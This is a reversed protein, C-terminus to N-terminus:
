TSKTGGKALIGLQRAAWSDMEGVYRQVDHLAPVVAIRAEEALVVVQAIPVPETLRQFGRATFQVRIHQHGVMHVQQERWQRRLRHVAEDHRQTAAVHLVDIAAVAAGPRQPVAAVFGRLHPGILIQQGALALDFQVRHTRAHDIPRRVVAPAAVAAIPQTLIILEDRRM